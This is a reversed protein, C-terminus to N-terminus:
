RELRLLLDSYNILFVGILQSSRPQFYKKVSEALFTGIGAAQGNIMVLGGVVHTFCYFAVLLHALILTLIATAKRKKM